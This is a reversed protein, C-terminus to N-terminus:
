GPLNSLHVAISRYALAFSLSCPTTCVTRDRHKCLSLSFPLTTFPLTFICIRSLTSFCFVSLVYTARLIYTPQGDNQLSSTCRLAWRESMAVGPEQAHPLRRELSRSPPATAPACPLGIGFMGCFGMILAASMSRWSRPAAAGPMVAAELGPPPPPLKSAAFKKARNGPGDPASSRLPGSAGRTCPAGTRWAICGIICIGFAPGMPVPPAIGPGIPGRGPIPPPGRVRM